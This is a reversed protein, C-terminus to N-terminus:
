GSSHLGPFPKGNKLSLPLRQKLLGVLTMNEVRGSCSHRPFGWGASAVVCGPCLM